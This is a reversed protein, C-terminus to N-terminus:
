RSRRLAFRASASRRAPAGSYGGRRDRLWGRLKIVLSPGALEKARKEGARETQDMFGELKRDSSSIEDPGNSAESANSTEDLEDQLPGVYWDPLDFGAKKAQRQVRRPIRDRKIGGLQMEDDEM